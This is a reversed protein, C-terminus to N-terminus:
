SWGELAASRADVDPFWLRIEDREGPRAFAGCLCEGSMHLTDVVLNRALGQAEIYANVDAKTWDLIVARWTWGLKPAHEIEQQQGRMRRASEQRRVGSCFTLPAGRRPKRERAFAALSREKLRRYM